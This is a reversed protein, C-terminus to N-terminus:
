RRRPGRLLPGSGRSSRWCRRCILQLCESGKRNGETSRQQLLLTLCLSPGLSTSREVLTSCLLSSRCKEAFVTCRTERMRAGSEREHKHKHQQPLDHTAAGTRRRFCLCDRPHAAVTRIRAILMCCCTQQVQREKGSKQKSSANSSSDSSTERPAHQQHQDSATARPSTSRHM